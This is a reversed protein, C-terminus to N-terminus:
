RLLFFHKSLIRCNGLQLTLVGTTSIMFFTRRFENPRSNLPNMYALLSKRYNRTVSITINVDFLSKKSCYKSEILTISSALDFSLSLRNGKVKAVTLVAVNLIKSATSPLSSLRSSRFSRFASAGIDEPWRSPCNSRGPSTPHKIDCLASHDFSRSDSSEVISIQSPSMQQRHNAQERIRFNIDATGFHSM